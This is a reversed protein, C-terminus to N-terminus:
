HLVLKMTRGRVGVFVEGKAIKTITAQADLADGESLLRGNIIAIADGGVDTIGTLRYLNGGYIKVSASSSAIQSRNVRLAQWVGLCSFIVLSLVVLVGMTVKWYFRQRAVHSEQVRILEQELTAGMPDRDWHKQVPAPNTTRTEQARSTKELAQQILSM